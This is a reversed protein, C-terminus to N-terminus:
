QRGRVCRVYYKYTKTDYYTRGTEFYVVWARKTGSVYVSSSWYFDSTNVYKFDKKIALKYRSIDVISQLEKINPLRWDSYGGLNLESCYSMADQWIMKTEKVASNDQWTLGTKSDVFIDSAFSLSVGIMILFVARM